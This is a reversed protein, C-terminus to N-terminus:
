KGKRLASPHAKAIAGPNKITERVARGLSRAASRVAPHQAAAAKVSGLGIKLAKDVRSTKNTPM